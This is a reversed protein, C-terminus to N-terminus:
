KKILAYLKDTKQYLESIADNISGSSSLDLLLSEFGLAKLVIFVRKRIQPVGFESANLLKYDVKYGNKNLVNRINDIIEGKSRSLIGSVNEILVM